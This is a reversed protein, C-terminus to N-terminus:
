PRSCYCRRDRLARLAALIAGHGGIGGHDLVAGIRLEVHAIHRSEGPRV